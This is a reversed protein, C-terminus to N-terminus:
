EEYDWDIDDWNLENDWNWDEDEDNEDHPYYKNEWAIYCEDIKEDTQMEFCLNLDADEQTYDYENTEETSNNEENNHSDDNNNTDMSLNPNNEAFYDYNEANNIAKEPTVKALKKANEQGYAHDDTGAVATFHSVEHVLTGAQTDTGTKSSRWFAGCLYIQYEANPHVYAYNDNYMDSDEKCTGCDFSINKNEFADYIKQFGETVTKQRKENAKGFWTVYRESTTKKPAKNLVDMSAKSIIIADDHAVKLIKIESQTCTNFKAIQKFASTRKQQANPVFTFTITPVTKKTMENTKLQTTDLLRYKFTGDFSVKYDGKKKMSYYTPMNISVRETTGAEFLIYDSDKPQTRKIAIGLYTNDTSGMNVNFIDASLTKEFPTNWKLVEIDQKSHNTVSVVIKGNYANTDTSFKVNLPSAAFALLPTLSILLLKKM